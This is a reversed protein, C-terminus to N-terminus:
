GHEVMKESIGYLVRIAILSVGFLLIYAGVQAVVLVDSARGLIHLPLGICLFTLGLVTMIALVREIFLAAPMKETVNVMENDM